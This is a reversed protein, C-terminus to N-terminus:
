TITLETYMGAAYHGPLNCLLEYTGPPLNLTVWGISGPDIGDGAGAGCTVARVAATGSVVGALSTLTSPASQPRRAAGLPAATPSARRLPLGLDPEVLRNM